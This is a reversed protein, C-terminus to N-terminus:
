NYDEYVEVKLDHTNPLTMISGGGWNVKFEGWYTGVSGTSLTTWNFECQGSAAVIIDVPGSTYATYTELDGMHFYITSATLDLASGGEWPNMLTKVLAPSRDGKKIKHIEVM